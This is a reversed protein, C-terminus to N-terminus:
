GLPSGLFVRTSGRQIKLRIVKNEKAEKVAKNFDVANTVSKGDVELIVDGARLGMRAGVGDAQLDKVQVGEGEKLGMQEAASAPVKEIEVGLEDSTEDRTSPAASGPAKTTREAIQVTFDVTKKDRVVTLTASTGPKERGVINKLEAAGSINKGNFKVIIDGPKIGAKEAPSGEVVRSVLAGNADTVGFSKALSENLDQISVGLLGRHVKGDKPPDEMTPNASNANFFGTPNMINRVLGAATCVWVGKYYDHEVWAMVGDFKVVHIVAGANAKIVQKKNIQDQLGERGFKRYLDMGTKFAEISNWLTVPGSLQVAMKKFNLNPIPTLHEPEIIRPVDLPAWWTEIENRKQVIILDGTVRQVFFDTGPLMLAIKNLQLLRNFAEMDDMRLAGIALSLAGKEKSIPTPVKAVQVTEEFSKRPRCYTEMWCRADTGSMTKCKSGRSRLSNDKSCGYAYDDVSFDWCVTVDDSWAAPVGLAWLTSVVVILIRM